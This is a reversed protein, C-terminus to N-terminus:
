RKAEKEKNVIEMQEQLLQNEIQKQRLQEQLLRLKEKELKEVNQHSSQEQNSLEQRRQAELNKLDQLYRMEEEYQRIRQKEELNKRTKENEEKVMAVVRQEQMEREMSRLRDEYERLRYYSESDELPNVPVSMRSTYIPQQVIQAQTQASLEAKAKAIEAEAKIKAMQAETEAKIKAIEAEANITSLPTVSQQVPQAQTQSAMEAKAKAIEAEAKLKAIEADKEAKIRAIEAENNVAPIPPVIPQQVPQAQAQASLEAKAKAIEAEAKIKAIEADKEAKIRAIEAENNVAPISQVLPQQIAHAQTQIEEKIEKKDENIQQEKKKKKRKVLIIILILLFLFVILGILFWLWYLLIYDWITKFFEVIKNPEREPVSFEHSENLLNTTKEDMVFNKTDLLVAKVTYTQGEVLSNVENGDTDYYKYEIINELNGKFDSGTILDLTGQDNWVGQLETPVIEWEVTLMDEDITYSIQQAERGLPASGDVAPLGQMDWEYSDYDKITLVLKYKGVITGLNGVCEVLDKHKWDALIDIETGIYKLSTAIEPLPLLIRNGGNISPVVYVEFTTTKGQYRVTITSTSDPILKGSLTYDEPSIITDYASGDNNTGTITLWDKLKKLSTTSKIENLGPEFLATISELVVPKVNVSFTTTYEQGEHWYSVKITTVGESLTANEQNGDVSLDYSSAPIEGHKGGDNYVGKVELWKKLDELNSSTFVNGDQSFDATIKELKSAVIDQLTLNCTVEDSGTGYHITLTSNGATLTGTITYGAVNDATNGNNYVGSVTIYQKLDELNMSDYITFGEPLTITASIEKMKADETALEMMGTMKKYNSSSPTFTYSYKQIGSRLKQGADWMYTGATGGNVEDAVIAPCEGGAYLKASPNVLIPKLIPTAQEIVFSFECKDAPRYDENYTPKISVILKYTGANIPPVASGADYQSDGALYYTYKFDIDKGVVLTQGKSTEVNLEANHSNGDYVEGSNKISIIIIERNDKTSFACFTNGSLVYNYGAKEPNLEVVAYYNKGEEIDALKVATAGAVINGTGADFDSALYYKVEDLLDKVGLTVDPTPLMFFFNDENGAGQNYEQSSWNMQIPKPTIEVSLSVESTSGDYWWEEDSTLSFTLKYIGADKVRLAGNAIHSNGVIPTAPNAPDAQYLIEKKGGASFEVEKLFDINLDNIVFDQLEGNFVRSQVPVTPKDPGIYDSFTVTSSMAIYDDYTYTYSSGVSSGSHMAFYETFKKDATTDNEYTKTITQTQNKNGRPSLRLRWQSVGNVTPTNQANSMQIEASHDTDGMHYFDLTGAGSGSSSSCVLGLHMFAEYTVEYKTKAPLIIESKYTVYEGVYLGIQKKIKSGYATASSSDFRAVGYSTDVSTSLGNGISYVFDSKAIAQYEGTGIWKVTPTAPPTALPTA